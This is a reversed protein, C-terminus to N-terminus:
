SINCMAEQKYLKKLILISKLFEPQASTSQILRSCSHTRPFLNLDVIKMINSPIEQHALRNSIEQSPSM